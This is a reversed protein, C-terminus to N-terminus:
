FIKLFDNIGLTAQDHIKSYKMINESRTALRLNTIKSDLHMFSM